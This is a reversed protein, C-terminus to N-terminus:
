PMPEAAALGWLLALAGAPLAPGGDAMPQLWGNALPDLLVAGGALPQLQEQLGLLGEAAAAAGVLVLPRSRLQPERSHWHALCPGLAQLLATPQGLAPLRWQWRPEGAQLRLLWSQGAECLLLLRDAPEALARLGCVGASELGDLGLGAQTFVTIWAELLATPVALLLSTEPDALSLQQLDLQELPWPLALAEAEAALLDRLPQPGAGAPWQLLRWASAQWPLVARVRAGGYGRELLWDGILDGLAEPQRPEGAVLVGQPLPLTECWQLQSGDLVMATIAQDQLELYVRRPFLWAGLPALRDQVASLVM